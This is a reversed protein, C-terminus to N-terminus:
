VAAAGCCCYGAWCFWPLMTTCWIGILICYADCCPITHQCKAFVDCCGQMAADSASPLPSGAGKCRLMGVRLLPQPQPRLLVRAHCCASVYCLGQLARFLVAQANVQMPSTMWFHENHFELVGEFTSVERLCKEIQSCFDGQATQRYALLGCTLTLPPTLPARHQRDAPLWDVRKWAGGPPDITM